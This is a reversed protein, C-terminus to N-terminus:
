GSTIDDEAVAVDYVVHGRSVRAEATLPHAVVRGDHFVHEVAADEVLVLHDALLRRHCHWWLAEACMVAGAREATLRRLEAIGSAFEASAMHDAYARFQDNRLCVNPSRKLLKRRGGLAVLWRYDLGHEPLWSAMAERAFHPFRRSGPFRRVDVVVEVRANRVLAAFAAASLTGHGLTRIARV